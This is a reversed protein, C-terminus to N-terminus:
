AISVSEASGDPKRIWMQLANGYTQANFTGYKTGKGSKIRVVQGKKNVEM